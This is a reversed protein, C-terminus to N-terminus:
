ALRVLSEKIAFTDQESEIFWYGKDAMTKRAMAREDRTLHFSEFNVVWPEVGADFFWCLIKFDMGETDLQLFDVAKVQNQKLLSLVSLSPVIVESVDSKKLGFRLHHGALLSARPSAKSAPVYLKANGDAGAIAANILKINPHNAYRAMLSQFPSAQPEVLLADVNQKTIIKELPDLLRGDFAGIQIFQYKNKKAKQLLVFGLAPLDAYICPFRYSKTLKYGNKEIIQGVFFRINRIIKM